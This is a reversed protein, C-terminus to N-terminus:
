SERFQGPADWGLVKVGELGVAQQATEGAQGMALGKEGNTM